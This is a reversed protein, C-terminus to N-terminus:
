SQKKKLNKMVVRVKKVKEPIKHALVDAPAHKSLDVQSNVKNIARTYKRTSKNEYPMYRGFEQPRMIFAKLKGLITKAKTPARM